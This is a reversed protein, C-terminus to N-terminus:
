PATYHRLDSLKTPVPVLANYVQLSIAQSKTFATLADHWKELLESSVQLSPNAGSDSALIVADCSANSGINYQIKAKTLLENLPAYEVDSYTLKNLEQQAEATYSDATAKAAAVIDAPEKELVLEYFSYTQEPFFFFRKPPAFTIPAASGTCIYAKPAKGEKVEFASVLKNTVCLVPAIRTMLKAFQVDVKGANETLADFLQDYRDRSYVPGPGVSSQMEETLFLNTNALFSGNEGFDGSERVAKHAATTEAVYATGSTDVVLYNYGSTLQTDSLMDKAETANDCWRGLRYISLDCNMGCQNDINRYCPGSTLLIILGKDNILWSLSIKGFEGGGSIFHNGEDPLFIKIALEGSALDDVTQMAVLQGESTEKGWTAFTSCRGEPPLDELLSSSPFNAEPSAAPGIDWEFSMLLCDAYTLPYGADTSGDAMGKFFDVLEPTYELVYYQLGKIIEEIEARSMYGAGFCPGGMPAGMFLSWVRDKFNNIQEPNQHGYQYGMEYDSGRVIIVPAIGPPVVHETPTPTAPPPAADRLHHFNRGTM